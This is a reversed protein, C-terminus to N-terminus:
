GDLYLCVCVCVCVCVCIFCLLFVECFRCGVPDCSHSACEKIYLTYSVYEMAEYMNEVYRRYNRDSLM